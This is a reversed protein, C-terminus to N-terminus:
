SRSGSRGLDILLREVAGSLTGLGRPRVLEFAPLSALSLVAEARTPGLGILLAVRETVTLRRVGVGDGWRLVVWGALEADTTGALSMRWRGGERGSEVPQGLSLHVAAPERLDILRPGQRVTGQDLVLLDDSLVDIGLQALVALTTSKGGAKDAVLAWAKGGVVFAGAHYAERGAWSSFVAAAPVLYPHVLEEPGVRTPVYFTATRAPRDLVLSGGTVLDIVTGQDNEAVAPRFPASSLIQRVEVDPRGRTLRCSPPDGVELGSWKIGYCLAPLPAAKVGAM